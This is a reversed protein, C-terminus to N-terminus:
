ILLEGLPGTARRTRGEQGFDDLEEGALYGLTNWLNSLQLHRESGLGPYFITRGETRLGLGRGGLLLVPFESATSHHQEGNDSIYVIATHDLMTGGLVDPTDRLRRAVDAIM